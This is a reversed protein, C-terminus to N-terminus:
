ATGLDDAQVQGLEVWGVGLLQPPYLLGPQVIYMPLAAGAARDEEAAVGAVGDGVVELLFPGAVGVAM